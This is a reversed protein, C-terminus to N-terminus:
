PKNASATANATNLHGNKRELKVADSASDEWQYLAREWGGYSPNPLMIWRVGWKEAHLDQLERRSEASPKNGVSVFDNLDDGILLLIRYRQAVYRRRTEKDSTWAERERKSFIRDVDNVPVVGQSELNSRTAHEVANERNTVFFVTVNKARATKLFDAVGPILDAQSEAVWEHWSDLDFTGDGEILRAQYPSNNLVTEDVDLIVAPPLPAIGPQRDALQQQQIPDASWYPDQLAIHLQREANLYAQRCVARYEASTQVWLTGDLDEHAKRPESCGLLLLFASLCIWIGSHYFKKTNIM